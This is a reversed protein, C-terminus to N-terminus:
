NVSIESALSTALIKCFKDLVRGLGTNLVSDDPYKGLNSSEWWARNTPSKKLGSLVTLDAL